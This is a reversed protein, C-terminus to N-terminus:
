RSRKQQNLRRMPLNRRLRTQSRRSHRIQARALSWGTVLGALLVSLGMVIRVKM